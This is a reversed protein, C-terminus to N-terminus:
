PPHIAVKCGRMVSVRNLYITKTKRENIAVCLDRLVMVRWAMLSGHTLGYIINRLQPTEQNAAM